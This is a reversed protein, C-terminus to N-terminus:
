NPQIIKAWALCLHHASTLTTIFRWTGYCATFKKFLQSGSSRLFSGAGHLLFYVILLNVKIKHHM